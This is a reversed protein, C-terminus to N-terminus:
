LHGQVSTALTTILYGLAVFTAADTIAQLRPLWGRGAVQAGVIWLLLSGGIRSVAFAAYGLASVAPSAVLFASLPVLYFLWFGIRTTFGLGLAFGNFAATRWNEYELWRRDTERNLQWPFARSWAGCLVSLAALGAFAWRTVPDLVAGALGLAGGVVLSAAVASGLLVAGAVVSSEFCGSVRARTVMVAV